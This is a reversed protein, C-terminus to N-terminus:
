KMSNLKFRTEDRTVSFFRLRRAPFQQQASGQVAAQELLFFPRYHPFAAGV